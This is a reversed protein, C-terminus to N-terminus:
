LDTYKKAHGRSKEVPYKAENKKLKQTAVQLPDIDLSNCFNLLCILVDGVEDDVKAKVDSSLDFSQQPTLWMFMEQLEAVEVSLAAVLNKPTHFQEWDRDRAFQTLSRRLEELDRM